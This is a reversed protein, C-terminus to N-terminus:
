LSDVTGAQVRRLLEQACEGFKSEEWKGIRKVELDRDFWYAMPIIPEGLTLVPTKDRPIEIRWSLVCYYWGEYVFITGPPLEWLKTLMDKENHRTGRSQRIGTHMLM